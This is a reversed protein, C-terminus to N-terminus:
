SMRNKYDEYGFRKLLTFSGNEVIGISPHRVGNFMTTKVMTYHIMDAFAIDDGIALEHPFIWDGIWDGALCSCGGLRYRYDNDGNAGGPIQAGLVRPQYPMELCDPMHATFSVDLIATRIGASQVIDLVKSRLVGADWAYASSPELYVRIGPYRSRFAKLGEILVDTDYGPKTVLHGGGFNVWDIKGSELIGRFKEEFTTIAKVSEDASSECLVHFHLGKLMDQTSLSIAENPDAGLRSGEAAPNYLETKVPSYGPNVRIGCSVSNAVGANHDKVRPSFTRFQSVSNFTIHSSYRLIESFEQEAFAPSYTHARVGMEEFILRSEYLGSASAGDVYPKMEPFLKWLAFGKLAPIFYVDAAKQVRDIERFNRQLADADIVYSPSPINSLDGIMPSNDHPHYFFVLSANKDLIAARM